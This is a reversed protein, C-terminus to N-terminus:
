LFGVCCQKLHRLSQLNHIMIQILDFCLGDNYYPYCYYHHNVTMHSVDSCINGNRIKQHYLRWWLWVVIEWVAEM